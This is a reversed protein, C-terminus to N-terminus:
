FLSMQEGTKYKELDPGRVPIKLEKEVQKLIYAAIPPVIPEEHQHPFFYVEKLGKQMYVKLVQIWEDVRQYDTPHLANGVFRVIWKNTSIATHLVDRRGAVDSVVTAVQQERCMQVFQQFTPPDAFWSEHRVEVALPIHDPFLTLFQELQALRSSDFYPPLQMFCCGLREELGAIVATFRNLLGKSLGFDRSHSISQPLKPCFRFDPPTAAKWKEVLEHTPIRYHTTNLEISNFQEGYYKLFDTTKTGKPYIQGVWEKTSWGTAGIYFTPVADNTALRQLYDVSEERPKPPQFEIHDINKIYGFKM